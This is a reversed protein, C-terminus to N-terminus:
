RVDGAGDPLDLTLDALLDLLAVRHGDELRHLHLHRDLGLVLARHPLDEDGLALRDGFAVRQHDKLLASSADPLSSTSSGAAFTRRMRIEFGSLRPASSWSIRSVRRSVTAAASARQRSM